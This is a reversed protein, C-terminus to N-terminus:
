CTLSLHSDSLQVQREPGFRCSGTGCGLRPGWADADLPAVARGCRGRPRGTRAPCGRQGRLESLCSRKPAERGQAGTGKAEVRM